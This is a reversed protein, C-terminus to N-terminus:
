RYAGSGPYMHIPGFLWRAGYGVDCVERQASFGLRNVSRAVLSCSETVM